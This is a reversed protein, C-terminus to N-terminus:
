KLHEKIMEMSYNLGLEEKVKDKYKMDPYFTIMSQLLKDEVITNDKCVFNLWQLYVKRRYEFTRKRAIWVTQQYLQEPIQANKNNHLATIHELTYAFIYDAYKKKLIDCETGIFCHTLYGNVLNITSYFPNSNPNRKNIIDFMQQTTM